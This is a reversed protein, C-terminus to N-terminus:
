AQWQVDDVTELTSQSGSESVVGVVGNAALIKLAERVTSRSVGLQRTLDSEILRQGVVYDRRLVGKTITSAVSEPSSVANAPTDPRTTGSKSELM